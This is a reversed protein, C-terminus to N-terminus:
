PVAGVWSDPGPLLPDLADLGGGDRDLLRPLQEGVAAAAAQLAAADGAAPVAAAMVRLEAVDPLVGAAASIKEVTREARQRLDIAYDGAADGAGALALLSSELSLGLGALYLMRRREPPAPDNAPTYWVNHRVEGQTWALLEFASGTPHGGVNVLEEHAIAHCAICNGALAHLNGPRIMGAAEAQQWRAAAEAPTETEETRGSFESHVSIWDRGGGHCSECTVGARVRARSGTQVPTYHCAACLGDPDKVRRVGLRSAFQRGERSRHTTDILTHHLSMEWAEASSKHCEACAGPGVVTAIDLGPGPRPAEATAALPLALLLLTAALRRPLAPRRNRAGTGPM